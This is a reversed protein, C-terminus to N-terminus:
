PGTEGRLQETLARADALLQQAEGLGGGHAAAQERVVAVEASLRELEARLGGAESTAGDRSIHAAALQERLSAADQAHRQEAAVSAGLREELTSARDVARQLEAQAQDREAARMALEERTHALQEQVAALQEDFEQRQRTVATMLQELEHRLEGHAAELGAQRGARTELESQADALTGRLQAAEGSRRELETHLASVTEKLLLDALPGSRRPDAPESPATSLAEEAAAAAPAVPPDPSPPLSSSAPVAPEAPPRPTSATGPPDVAVVANGVWVAAQGPRTPVAWSPITFEAQWTGPLPADSRAPHRSAPFRHRRGQLQIVLLSEQEALPHTPDSDLWRGSLRLRVSDGEGRAREVRDIAIPSDATAPDTTSTM